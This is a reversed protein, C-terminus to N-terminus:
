KKYCKNCEWYEFKEKKIKMKGFYHGGKYKGNSYLNIAIPKACIVCKRIIEKAEIIQIM